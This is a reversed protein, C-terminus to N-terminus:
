GGATLSYAKSSDKAALDAPQIYFEVVGCDCFMFDTGHDSDLVLLSYSHELTIM